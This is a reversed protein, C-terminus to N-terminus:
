EKGTAIWDDTVPDPLQPKPQRAPHSPHLRAYGASVQRMIEDARREAAAARDKWLLLEYCAAIPANHGYRMFFADNLNRADQDDTM